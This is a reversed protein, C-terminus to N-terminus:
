LDIIVESSIDDVQIERGKLIADLLDMDLIYPKTNPDLNLTLSTDPFELFAVDQMKMFNFEVNGPAEVSRLAGERLFPWYFSRYAVHKGDSNLSLETLFTRGARFSMFCLVLTILFGFICLINKFKGNSYWKVTLQYGTYAFILHIFGAQFYAGKSKAKFILLRGDKDFQLVFNPKYSTREAQEQAQEEYEETVTVFSRQIIRPNLARTSRVGMCIFKTNRGILALRNM